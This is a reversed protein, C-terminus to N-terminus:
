LELPHMKEPEPVQSGPQRAAQDAVWGTSWSSRQTHVKSGSQRTAQTGPKRTAEKGQRGQRGQRGAAPQNATNLTPRSGGPQRRRQRSAQRRQNSYIYIYTIIHYM